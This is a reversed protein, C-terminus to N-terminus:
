RMRKKFAEIAAAPMGVGDNSARALVFYVKTTTATAAIINFGASVLNIIDQLVLKQDEDPKEEDVIFVTTEIKM